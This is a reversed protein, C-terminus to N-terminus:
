VSIGTIKAISDKSIGGLKGISAQSIGYVKTINTWGSAPETFVWGTNNGGDTNGESTWANWTAGGAAISYSITCYSVDITGSACSLTHTAATASTITIATTGDAVFDTVTTTTGAKFRLIAGESIKIQNFTHNSADYM